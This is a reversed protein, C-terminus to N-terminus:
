VFLFGLKVSLNEFVRLVLGLDIVCHTNETVISSLHINIGRLLCTVKTKQHKLKAGRISQIKSKILNSLSTETNMRLTCSIYRVSNWVLSVHLISLVRLLGWKPARLFVLLHKM